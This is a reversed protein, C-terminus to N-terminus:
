YSVCVYLFTCSNYVFKEMFKRLILVRIYGGGLDLFLGIGTNAFHKEYGKGTVVGM